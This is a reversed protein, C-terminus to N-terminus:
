VEEIENINFNFLMGLDQLLQKSETDCIGQLDSTTVEQAINCINLIRASIENILQEKKNM